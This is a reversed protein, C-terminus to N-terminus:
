NFSQSTSSKLPLESLAKEGTKALPDFFSLAHKESFYVIRCLRVDQGGVPELLVLMSALEQRCKRRGPLV